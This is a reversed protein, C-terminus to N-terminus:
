KDYLTRDYWIPTTPCKYFAKWMNEVNPVDWSNLNQNFKKCKYFMENMYKLSSVNWSNLDQNFRNCNYFM